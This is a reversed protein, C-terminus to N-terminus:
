SRGMADVPNLRAARWAPLLSAFFAVFVLAIMPVSFAAVSWVGRFVPEMSIGGFEMDGYGARLDIGTNVMWWCLLAGVLAGVVLSVLALSMSEFIVLVIMHGPRLGVARLIGLERTRELVSMLLTNTAGLGATALIIFIAILNWADSLDYYEAMFPNAARWSRVVVAAGERMPRHNADAAGEVPAADPDLESVVGTWDPLASLEGVIEESQDVDDLRVIISHAGGLVLLSSSEAITTWATMRDTADSGTEVLGVVQWLTNGLSGDTAQTIVIVEGGVDVRLHKALRGGLVVEAPGKAFRGQVVKDVIRSFEAEREGEVGLLSVGASREGSSLLVAGQVRPAAAVVRPDADLRALVAETDPVTDYLNEEVLQGPALIQLHGTSGAVMADISSALMGESLVWAVSSLALGGGLAAVTILTRRPNRRLNRWAM